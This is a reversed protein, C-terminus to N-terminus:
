RSSHRCTLITLTSFRAFSMTLLSFLVLTSLVGSKFPVLNDTPCIKKETHVWWWWTIKRRVHYTGGKTLKSHLQVHPMHQLQSLLVCLESWPSPVYPHLAMDDKMDNKKVPADNLGFKYAEFPASEGDLNHAIHTTYM